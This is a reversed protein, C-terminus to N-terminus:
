ERFIEWIYGTSPNEKLLVEFEDGEYIELPTDYRIRTYTTLDVVTKPADQALTLGAFAALYLITKM